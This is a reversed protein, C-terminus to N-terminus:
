ALADATDVFPLGLSDAVARNTVQGAVTTLGPVLTPHAAVAKKM